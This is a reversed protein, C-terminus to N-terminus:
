ILADVHDLANWFVARVQSAGWADPEILNRYWLAREPAPAPNVRTAPDALNRDLGAKDFNDVHLMVVLRVGTNRLRDM